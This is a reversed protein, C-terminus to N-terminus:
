LKPLIEYQVIDAVYLFDRNMQAKLMLQLLNNIQQITNDELIPLYRVLDECFEVCYENAQGEAGLRFADCMIHAKEFLRNKNLNETALTVM